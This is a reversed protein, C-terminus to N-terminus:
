LGASLDLFLVRGGGSTEMGGVVTIRIKAGFVLKEQTHFKVYILWKLIHKETDPKKHEFNKEQSIPGYWLM